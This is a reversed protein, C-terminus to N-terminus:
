RPPRPTFCPALDGIKATFECLERAAVSYKM